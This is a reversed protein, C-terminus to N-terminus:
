GAGAQRDRGRQPSRMQEYAAVAARRRRECDWMRQDNMGLVVACTRLSYGEARLQAYSVRRQPVCVPELRIQPHGDQERWTWTDESM